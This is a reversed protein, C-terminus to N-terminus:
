APQEPSVVKVVVNFNEFGTVEVEQHPDVYVDISKAEYTKGNILIKGMPALRTITTGRAGIVVDDKEPSTQSSGDINNKLALRHWTKARLGFILLIVSLILVVALAIFGGVNGYEVFAKYVAFACAGLAGFGAISIGPLLFLEVGLLFIGLLILLIILTM